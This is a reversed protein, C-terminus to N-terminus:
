LCRRTEKIYIGRRRKEREGDAMKCKQTYSHGLGERMIGSNYRLTHLKM